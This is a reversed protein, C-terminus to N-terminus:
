RNQATARIARGTDTRALWISVGGAMALSAVAAVIRFTNLPFGAVMFSTLSIASTTTRVNPGFAMLVLNDILIYVGATLLLASVPEVVLASERRILPGIIVAQVLYGLAFMLPAAVLVSV